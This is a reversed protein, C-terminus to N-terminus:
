SYEFVVLAELVFASHCRLANTFEHIANTSLRRWDRLALNIEGKACACGSIALSMFGWEPVIHRPVFAWVQITPM